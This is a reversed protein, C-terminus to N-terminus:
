GQGVLSPRLERRWVFRLGSWTEDIACVKNDVLGSPLCVERLVDETLDTPVGSARKPWAIWLGGDPAIRHALELFRAELDTRETTFFLAVDVPDTAGSATTVGDPLVGLT